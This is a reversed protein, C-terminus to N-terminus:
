YNGSPQVGWLIQNHGSWVCQGGTTVCYVSNLRWGRPWHNQRWTRLHWEDSASGWFVTCLQWMNSRSVTCPFLMLIPNCESSQCIIWSPIHEPREVYSGVDCIMLGSINGMDTHGVLTHFFKGLYGLGQRIM